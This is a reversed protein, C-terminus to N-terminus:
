TTHHVATCHCYFSVRRAIENIIIFSESENLQDGNWGNLAQYIPLAWSRHLVFWFFDLGRCEELERWGPEEKQEGALMCSLLPYLSRRGWVVHCSATIITGWWSNKSGGWGNRLFQFIINPSMRKFQGPHYTLKIAVTKKDSIFRCILRSFYLHRNCFRTKGWGHHM